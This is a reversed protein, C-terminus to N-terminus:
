PQGSFLQGPRLHGPGPGRDFGLNGSYLLSRRQFKQALAGRNLVITGALALVGLAAIILAATKTQPWVALLILGLAILGAAALNLYKKLADM